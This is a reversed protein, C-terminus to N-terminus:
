LEEAAGDALKLVTLRGTAYAGTDIGVRRTGYMVETAPTHGHIVLVPLDPGRSLFPERIWMLDEDIQEELPVGPRLGAHVFVLRGVCLLSPLGELFEVHQVPITQRVTDALMKEGGSRELMHAADIGYSYLTERGGLELWEMHDRPTKIFQLFVDDHNGCLAVREFGQPPAQCLHDLVQSSNPGRDIYDGLMVILKRGDRQSADRLIRQEAGLLETYCGHVDGIAYIASFAAGQLSLRSRADAGRGRGSGNSFIRRLLRRM